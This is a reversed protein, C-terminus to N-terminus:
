WIGRQSFHVFSAALTSHSSHPGDGTPERTHVRPGWGTIRHERWQAKETMLSQIRLVQSGSYVRLRIEVLNKTVAALSTVCLPM